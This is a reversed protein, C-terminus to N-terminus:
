LVTQLVITEVFLVRRVSTYTRLNRTDGCAHSLVSRYAHLLLLHKHLCDLTPMPILLHRQTHTMKLRIVLLFSNTHAHTHTHTISASKSTSYCARGLHAHTQACTLGLTPMLTHTMMVRGDVHTHTRMRAHTCTRTHIHTHAHTHTCTRTHMHSHAHAHTCTRTCTHTCAHTYTHTHMHISVGSFSQSQM